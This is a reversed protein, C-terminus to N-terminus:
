RSAPPLSSTERRFVDRRGNRELTLRNGDLTWRFVETERNLTISLRSQDARWTCSVSGMPLRFLYRGDAEFDEFATGGAPHPYSWIGLLASGSTTSPGVRTLEQRNQGVQMTLTRDAISIRLEDTQENGGPGQPVKRIVRDGDRQWTGDVMAGTTQMCSHDTALTM